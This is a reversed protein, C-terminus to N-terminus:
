LIFQKIRHLTDREYTRAIDYRTQTVDRKVESDTTKITHNYFICDTRHKAAIDDLKLIHDISLDKNLNKAIALAAAKTYTKAIVKNTKYCKITFMGQLPKISYSGINIRNKSKVPFLVTNVNSDVLEKLLEAPSTM